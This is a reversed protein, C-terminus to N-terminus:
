RRRKTRALCRELEEVAEELVLISGIGHDPFSLLEQHGNAKELYPGEHVYSEADQFYLKGDIDGHISRGLFVLPEVVPILCNQDVYSVMFYTGGQVLDTPKVATAREKM